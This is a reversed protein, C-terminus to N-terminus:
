NVSIGGAEMEEASIEGAEYKVMLRDELNYNTVIDMFTDVDIGIMASLEEASFLPNGVVYNNFLDLQEAPVSFSPVAESVLANGDEDTWMNGELANVVMVTALAGAVWYDGADAVVYDETAMSNLITQDLDGCIIKVDHDEYKELVTLAATGFTSAGTGFVFDIQDGYALYMDEAKTVAENADDTHAEDMIVGGAAEFVERFGEARPTGTADGVGPALIIGSSWGQDLAFEALNAGYAHNDPGIGGAFYEYEYLDNLIDEDTPVKDALTWYVGADECIDAITLYLSEVPLWLVLADCGASIMNEVDTVIQEISTGDIAQQSEGGLLEIATATNNGLADLAFDGTTFQNYGIKYSYTGVNEESTEDVEETVETDAEAIEESVDAEVEETDSSGCAALAFVMTGAVLLALIRRISKKM